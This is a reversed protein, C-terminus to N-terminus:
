ASHQAARQGRTEISGRRGLAPSIVLTYIASLGIVAYIVRTLFSMTGFVAAILDFGFFGMLGLNLGGIVLIIMAIWDLANLHRMIEEQIFAFFTRGNM